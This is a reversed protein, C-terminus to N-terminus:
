LIVPQLDAMFRASHTVWAVGPVAARYAHFGFGSWGHWIIVGLSLHYRAIYIFGVQSIWSLLHSQFVPLDSGWLCCGMLLLKRLGNYAWFALAHNKPHIKSHIQTYTFFTFLLSKFNIKLYLRFFAKLGELASDVERGLCSSAFFKSFRGFGAINTSMPYGECTHTFYLYIQDGYM